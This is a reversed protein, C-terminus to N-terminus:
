VLETGIVKEANLMRMGEKTELMLRGNAIVPIGEIVTDERQGFLTIRARQRQEIAESITYRMEDWADETLEPQKRPVAFHDLQDMLIRHEPLIMRMAEFINGDLIDTM